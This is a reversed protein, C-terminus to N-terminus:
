HLETRSYLISSLSVCVSLSLSLSFSPSFTKTAHCHSGQSFILSHQTDGNKKQAHADRDAFTSGTCACVPPLAGIKWSNIGPVKASGTGRRRWGCNTRTNRTVQLPDLHLHCCLRGASSPPRLREASGGHSSGDSPSPLFVCM